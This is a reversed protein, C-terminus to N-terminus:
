NVELEGNCRDNAELLFLDHFLNLEQQDQM